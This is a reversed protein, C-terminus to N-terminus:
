IVFATHCQLNNFEESTTDGAPRRNELHLLSDGDPGDGSHLGGSSRRARILFLALGGGLVGAIIVALRIRPDAIAVAIVAAVMGLGGLGEVKISSMNILSPSPAELRRPVFTAATGRRNRAIFFSLLLGGFLGPILIILLPEMM